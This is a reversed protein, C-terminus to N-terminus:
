QDLLVRKWEVRPRQFNILLAVRLGSAKLYNICQALHENAFRDVCKLEVVLKDEVVLDALYEGVCQGKYCIPFSVQAKAIVGRLTLERILAREYVKELFGAGLVKSIEFASGIVTKTLASEELRHADTDM